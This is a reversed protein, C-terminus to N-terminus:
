QEAKLDGDFTYSAGQGTTLDVNKEGVQASTRSPARDAQRRAPPRKM